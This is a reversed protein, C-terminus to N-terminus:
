LSYNLKTEVAEISSLLDLPRGVLSESGKFIKKEPKFNPREDRAEVEDSSVGVPSELVKSSSKTLSGTGQGLTGGLGPSLPASSVMGSNM